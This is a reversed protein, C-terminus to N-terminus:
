LPRRLSCGYVSRNSAPNDISENHTASCRFCKYLSDFVGPSICTWDHALEYPKQSAEWRDVQDQTMGDPCYEFMLRDIEAQKSDQALLWFKNLKDLYNNVAAKRSSFDANDILGVSIAGLEFEKLKNTM